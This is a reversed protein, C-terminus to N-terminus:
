RTPATSRVLPSSPVRPVSSIQARSVAAALLIRLTQMRSDQADRVPMNLVILLIDQAHNSHEALVPRAQHQSRMPLLPM